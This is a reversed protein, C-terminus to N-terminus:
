GFTVNKLLPRVKAKKLYHPVTSEALPRNIIATILLLIHELLHRLLCTPLLDLDCSKSPSKMTIDRVNDQIFSELEILPQGEFVIDVNM